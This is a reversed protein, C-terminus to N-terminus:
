CRGTHGWVGRCDEVYEYDARFGKGQIFSPHMLEPMQRAKFFAGKHLLM